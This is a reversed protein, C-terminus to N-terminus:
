EIIYDYTGDWTEGNQFEIIPNLAAYESYEKFYVNKVKSESIKQHNYAKYLYNDNSIFADLEDNQDYIGRKFTIDIASNGEYIKGDTTIIYNLSNNIIIATNMNYRSGDSLNDYNGEEDVLLFTETRGCTSYGAILYIDTYKTNSNTTQYLVVKDTNTEFKMYYVKGSSTIIFLTEYGACDVYSHKVKKVNNIKLYINDSPVEYIVTDNSCSLKREENNFKSLDTIDNFDSDEKILSYGNDILRTLKEQTDWNLKKYDDYKNSESSNISKNTDSSKNLYYVGIGVGILIVLLVIGIIGILKKKEM